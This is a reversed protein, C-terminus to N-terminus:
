LRAKEAVLADLLEGFGGCRSGRESRPMLACTIITSVM